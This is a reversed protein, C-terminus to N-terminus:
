NLTLLEGALEFRQDTCYLYFQTKRRSGLYHNMWYGPEAGGEKLWTYLQHAVRRTRVSEGQSRASLYDEFLMDPKPM